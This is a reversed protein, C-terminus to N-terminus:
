GNIDDDYIDCTKGLKDEREAVTAHMAIVNKKDRAEVSEFVPVHMVVHMSREWATCNRGVCLNQRECNTGIIIPLSVTAFKAISVIIGSVKGQVSLECVIGPCENEAAHM